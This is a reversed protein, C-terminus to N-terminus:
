TPSPISPPIARLVTIASRPRYTLKEPLAGVSPLSCVENYNDALTKWNYDGVMEWQHDFHYQSMDFKQLRDQLDVSSFYESWSVTPEPESDLNIWVFGLHDVHVHIQFLGNASKDFTPLEQYKPAKALKGDFGYSWGLYWSFQTEGLSYTLHTLMGHYKCALISVKGSEKEVLPYARHRCVNHHARINGQRDKILFFAFGAETIQVFDGANVFRAKHSVVIWHKSFISRRELQYMAESRYWSAPLARVAGDGSKDNNVTKGFGFWSSM